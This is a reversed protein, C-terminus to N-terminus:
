ASIQKRLVPGQPNLYGFSQSLGGGGGKGNELSLFWPVDKNLFTSLCALRCVATNTLDINQAQLPFIKSLFLFYHTWNNTIFFLPCSRNTCWYQLVNDKISLKLWVNFCVASVDFFYLLSAIILTISLNSLCRLTVLVFMGKKGSNSLYDLRGPLRELPFPSNLLVFPARPLLFPFANRRAEGERATERSFERAKGERELM